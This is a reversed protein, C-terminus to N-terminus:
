KTLIMTHTLTQGSTELRAVYLGSPIDGPRFRVEHSGADQVEDVLTAIRHGSVDWVEVQVHRSERLAYKIVTSGNFPNPFNGVLEAEPAEEPGGLGLKVEHSLAVQRGDPGVRRLRYYAVEETSIPDAIEFRHLGESGVNEGARVPVRAVSRYNEGDSSREVVFEGEGEPSARWSLTARRDDVSARFDQVPILFALDSPVFQVSEAGGRLGRSSEPGDFSLSVPAGDGAPIVRHLDREISWPSRPRDWMRVTELEGSYPRLVAYTPDAGDWAGSPRGGLGVRYGGSQAVSTSTQLSDVPRGDITLRTWGTSGDHSVAAHHWTGDAVPDSSRLSHHLGSEGRYCVLRGSRDVVLEVPYASSERGTWTSLVVEGLGTTRIWVETTFSDEMSLDLPRGEREVLPRELREPDFTLAREGPRSELRGVEIRGEHRSGRELSDSEATETYPPALEESDVTDRTAPRRYSQLTWRYSGPADPATIRAIVLGEAPIPPDSEIRHVFRPGDDPLRRVRVSSIPEGSRSQVWVGDLRFGEPLTLRTGDIPEEGTWRVFLNTSRGTEISSM